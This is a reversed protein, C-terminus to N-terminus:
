ASISVLDQEYSLVQVKFLPGAKEVSRVRARVKFGHKILERVTRSGVRGTAGAVFVLNDDNSDTKEPIGEIKTSGSAQARICHFKHPKVPLSTGFQDLYGIVQGEKIYDGRNSRLDTFCCHGRHCRCDFLTRLFDFPKEEGM